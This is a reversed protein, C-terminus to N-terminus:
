EVPGKMRAIRSAEIEELMRRGEALQEGSLATSELQDAIRIAEKQMAALSFPSVVGRSAILKALRGCEGYVAGNSREFRRVLWLAVDVFQLGVSEKSSAIRIDCQFTPAKKSHLLTSMITRDFALGKLMNYTTEMASAFQNQEDHVFTGVKLGTARHLDHLSAILLSLAVVNPSDLESQHQELLPAPNSTAWDIADTLLQVTRGDYIREKHLANLRQKIRRLLDCFRGKDGSGYVDWFERREGDELIQILQVALPIRLGRVGYHLNSVARNIGSDMLTDFLKTAALHRKELATFCFWCDEELFCEILREAIKEIGSLGLDNGHLEDRDVIRLCEAHASSCDVDLNGASLLTGTWFYPQGADFLNNGSNGAEDTYAQVPVDPRRQSVSELPFALAPAGHCRKYKNGSGCPCPANRSVKTM